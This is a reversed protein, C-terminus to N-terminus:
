RHGGSDEDNEANSDAGMTQIYSVLQWIRQDPLHSWSPMGSPLNGNRISDFLAVAPANQIEPLHLNKARKLGRGEKGHCVSCNKMFLKRGAM